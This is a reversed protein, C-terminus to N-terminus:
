EYKIEFQAAVITNADFKYEGNKYRNKAEKLADKEDEGEIVTEIKRIQTVEVAFTKKTKM